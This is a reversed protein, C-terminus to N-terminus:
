CTLSPFYNVDIREVPPRADLDCRSDTLLDIPELTDCLHSSKMESSAYLSKVDANLSPTANLSSKGTPIIGIRPGYVALFERYEEFSLITKAVSEM